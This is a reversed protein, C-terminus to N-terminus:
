TSEDAVAPLSELEWRPRVTFAGDGAKARALRLAGALAFRYVVSVTPSVQGLQWTIALWTSGWIATCIAFLSAVSM